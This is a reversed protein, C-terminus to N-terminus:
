KGEFKAVGYWIQAASLVRQVDEIGLGDLAALVDILAAGATKANPRKRHTGKDSRTKKPAPFKEGDISNTTPQNNVEMKM